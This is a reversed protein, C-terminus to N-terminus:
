VREPQIGSARARIRSSSPRVLKFSASRGSAGTHLVTLTGAKHGRSSQRRWWEEETTAPPELSSARQFVFVERQVTPFQVCRHSLRRAPADQGIESYWASSVRVALSAVNGDGRSGWFPDPASRYNLTDTIVYKLFDWSWRSGCVCYFYLCSSISPSSCSILLRRVRGLFLIRMGLPTSSSTLFTALSPQGTVDAHLSRRM